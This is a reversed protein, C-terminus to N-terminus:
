LPALALRFGLTYDRYAPRNWVRYAPRCRSPAIGWAGGRFVRNLGAAPATPDTVTGGPLPGGYRDQCWEWVNGHLDHFGWPNPKKEGVSHTQGRSNASYWAYDSLLADANGFHFRTSTGARCAFEWEAETPLRYQFNLPLRNADAEVTNLQQLWAQCDDWSVQEVPLRAGHFFSPEANLTTLDQAVEKWEEQTVPFQGLWFGRTITVDTQPGEDSSRGAETSPSGMTFRGPAVWNLKIGCGPVTYPQGPIPAAGSTKPRSTKHPRPTEPAARRGTGFVKCIREYALNLKKTEETAKRLLGPSSHHRDPHFFKLLQHYSRRAEQLTAGPKLGLARYSDDLNM